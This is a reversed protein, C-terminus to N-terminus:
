YARWARVTRGVSAALNLLDVAQTARMSARTCLATSVRV